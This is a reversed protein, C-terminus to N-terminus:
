RKETVVSFRDRTGWSNGIAALDTKVTESIHPIKQAVDFSPTEPPKDRVLYRTHNKQRFDRMKYDSNQQARM